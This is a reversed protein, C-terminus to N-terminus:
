HALPCTTVTCCKNECLDKVTPVPIFTSPLHQFFKQSDIINYNPFNVIVYSPLENSSHKPGLKHRYVIKHVVGISGNMLKLEPVFNKILMVKAGVCLGILTPYPSSKVCHNIGDTRYSSYQSKIKAVPNGFSQLYQITIPFTLKWQPMLNLSDIFMIKEQSPLNNLIRGFLLQCDDNNMDGSRMHSLLTKFHTDDQRLVEEM